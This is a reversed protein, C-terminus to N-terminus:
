ETPLELDCSCLARMRRRLSKPPPNSLTARRPFADPMASVACDKAHHAQRRSRNSFERATMAAPFSCDPECKGSHTERRLHPSFLDMRLRNSGGAARPGTKRRVGGNSRPRAWRSRDLRSGGRRVVARSRGLATTSGISRNAPSIAHLCSHDPPHPPTLTAWDVPGDIVTFKQELEMRLTGNIYRRMHAPFLVGEFSFYDTCEVLEEGVHRRIITGLEDDLCIENSQHTRGFVTEFQICKAHRGFLTAPTISNIIDSEDFRGNVVPALHYVDLSEIPPPIYESQVIRDPLHISISNYDGFHTEYRESDVAYIVSYTGDKATGDPSYARFTVDLKRNPLIRTSRSVANGRELLRIAEVRIPMDQANLQVTSAILFVSFFGLLRFFLRM